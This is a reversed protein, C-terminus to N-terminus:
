ANINLLNGSHHVAVVVIHLFLSHAASYEVLTLTEITTLGGIDARDPAFYTRQGTRVTRRDEGTTLGLSQSGDRETGAAILLNHVLSQNLTGVTEQEVVIERRECGTLGFCLTTYTTALNTMSVESATRELIHNRGIEWVAYAYNRIYQLGITRRRHSGNACTRERQHIGTYLDLFGDATDSHTHNGLQHAVFEVILNQAVDEAILVVEAIHVELGGTRTVTQGSALHIDLHITQTVLHQLVSECLSVLCTHIDEVLNQLSHRFRALVEFWLSRTNYRENNRFIHNTSDNAGATLNDLTDLGLGTSDDTNILYLFAALYFHSGVVFLSHVSSHSLNLSDHSHGFYAFYIFRRNLRDHRITAENLKHRSVFTQEM